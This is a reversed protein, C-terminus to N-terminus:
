TQLVGKIGSNLTARGKGDQLVWFQQLETPPPKHTVQMSEM